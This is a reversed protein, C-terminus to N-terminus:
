FHCPIKIKVNVGTTDPAIDKKNKIILSYVSVSSSYNELREKTIITALSKHKKAPNTEDSSPTKIGSGNDDIEYILNNNEIYFKINIEGQRNEIYKMGHEVANEAFPQGLLPPILLEDCEVDDSIHISYIFSNNFRLKQLDLYAKLFEIESSLTIFDERSFNLIMRMLHAFQALYDGAKLSDEKFIYSQIANLSNFIFHPNIQSVLLKQKIIDAKQEAIIQKQKSSKYFYYSFVGLIMLLLSLAVIWITRKLKSQEAAATIELFRKTSEARALAEKNEFDYLLKEEVLTEGLKQKSLSDNVTILEQQLLAAEKYKGIDIYRMALWRGKENQGALQKLNKSIQYAKEGFEISKSFNKKTWEIHSLSIYSSSLHLSDKIELRIKLALQQCSDAKNYQKLDEFTNGITQLSSAYGELDNSKLYLDIAQMQYNLAVATDKLQKYIISINKLTLATGGKNKNAQHLELSQIFYGLAIDERNQQMYVAGINGLATAKGHNDNLKERLKLAAFYNVAAKDYQGLSYYTKGLNNTSGAIGFSDKISTRYALAKEHQKVAEFSKGQKDYCLAITNLANGAYILQGTKIAFDYQLQSYYIASDTKNNVLYDWIYDEIAKIRSSDPLAKNNWRSLPNNNQASTNLYLIAFLFTVILRM